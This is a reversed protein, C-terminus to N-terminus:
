KGDGFERKLLEDREALIKAKQEQDLACAKSIEDRACIVLASTLLLAVFSLMFAGEGDLWHMLEFTLFGQLALVAIGGFFWCLWSLLLKQLNSV